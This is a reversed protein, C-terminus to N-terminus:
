FTKMPCINTTVFRQEKKCRQNPTKGNSSIIITLWCFHACLPSCFKSPVWHLQSFVNNPRQCWWGWIKFCLKQMFETAQTWSYCKRVFAGLRSRFAGPCHSPSPSIVDTRTNIVKAIWFKKSVGSFLFCQFQCLVKLYFLLLICRSTKLVQFICWSITVKCKEISEKRRLCFSIRLM